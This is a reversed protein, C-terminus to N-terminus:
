AAEEFAIDNRKRALAAKMRKEYAAVWLRISELAVYVADEAADSSDLIFQVKVLLGKLRVIDSPKEKKAEAQAIATAVDKQDAAAAFVSKKGNDDLKRFRRAVSENPLIPKDVDTSPQQKGRLEQEMRFALILQSARQRTFNWVKDCYADFTQYGNIRYLRRNRITALAQAVAIFNSIGTKITLECHRLLRRDEDTFDDSSEALNPNTDSIESNEAVAATEGVGVVEGHPIDSTVEAVAGSELISDAAVSEQGTAVKTPEVKSSNSAWRFRRPHTIKHKKMNEIKNQEFLM